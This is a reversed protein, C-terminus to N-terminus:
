RGGSRLSLSWLLTTLDDQGWVWLRWGGVVNGVVDRGVGQLTGGLQFSDPARPLYLAAQKGEEWITGGLSEFAPVLLVPSLSPGPAPPATGLTQDLWPPVQGKAKDSAATGVPYLKPVPDDHSLHLWPQILGPAASAPAPHPAALSIDLARRTGPTLALSLQAGTPGWPM